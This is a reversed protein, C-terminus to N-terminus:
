DLSKPATEYVELSKQNLEMIAKMSKALHSDKNLLVTYSKELSGVKRKAEAILMRLNSQYIDNV